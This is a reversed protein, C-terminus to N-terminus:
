TVRSPQPLANEWCAPLRPARPKGVGQMGSRRLLEAGSASRAAALVRQSFIAESSDFVSVGPTFDEMLERATGHVFRIVPQLLQKLGLKFGLFLLAELQEGLQQQLHQLQEASLEEVLEAWAVRRRATIFHKVADHHRVINYQVTNNTTCDRMTYRADLKLTVRKAGIPEEAAAAAASASAAAAAATTTGSSNGEFSCELEARASNGLLGALQVLVTSSCGVADAFWLMEELQPLSYQGATRDPKYGLAGMSSYVVSVVATVATQSVPRGNVLLNSLDWTNSAPANRWCSCVLRLVENHAPIHGGDATKVTLTPDTGAAFEAFSSQKSCSAM